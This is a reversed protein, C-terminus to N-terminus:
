TSRFDQKESNKIGERKLAKLVIRHGERAIVMDSDQLTIGDAVKGETINYKNFSYAEGQWRVRMEGLLRMAGYDMARLFRNMQEYSWDTDLWGGNPIEYSFHLQEEAMEEQRYFECQDLLLPELIREFVQIGLECQRQFLKLATVTEEVIVEEQAIIDGTDVGETLRHWTIGTVTDGQYISWAEANRGRHRPLLANHWNIIMLNDKEIITDPVLYTNGASVVLTKETEEMLRQRLEEKNCCRYFLGAKECLKQLVTSDTVKYELVEIEELRSKGAAACQYALKGSGLVIMKTYYYKTEM